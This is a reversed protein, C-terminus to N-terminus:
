EEPNGLFNTRDSYQLVLVLLERIDNTHEEDGLKVFSFELNRLVRTIIDLHSCAEFYKQKAPFKLEDLFQKIDDRSFIQGRNNTNIYFTDNPAQCTLVFLKPLNVGYIPLHMRQAILLYIVALSIPNGKKKDLVENLMSNSPAHFNKINTSFHYKLYFLDNLLRVKEIPESLEKVKKEVEYFLSEIKGKLIEIDLEPYQFTAIVWMGYLLDDQKNQVWDTMRDKVVLIQLRHIINEIREQFFPNLSEEWARELDDIICTGLSLLKAEVHEFVVQDTDDLLSILAKIEAQKM